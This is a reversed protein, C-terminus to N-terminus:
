CAVYSVGRQGAGCNRLHATSDLQPSTTGRRASHGGEPHLCMSADAGCGPPRGHSGGRMEGCGDGVVGALEEGAAEFDVAQSGAAGADLVGHYGKSFQGGTLMGVQSRGLGWASTAGSSTDRLEEGGALLALIDLV